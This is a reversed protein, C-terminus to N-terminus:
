FQMVPRQKRRKEAERRRRRASEESAAIERDWAEELRLQVEAVPLWLQSALRDYHPFRWPRKAGLNQSPMLIRSYLAFQM